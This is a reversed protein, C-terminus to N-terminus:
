RATLPIARTASADRGRAFRLEIGGERRGLVVSYRERTGGRVARVHVSRDDRAEIETMCLQFIGFPGFDIRGDRITIPSMSLVRARDIEHDFTSVEPLLVPLDPRYTGEFGTQPGDACPAEGFPLPPWSRAVDRTRFDLGLAPEATRSLRVPEADFAGDDTWEVTLVDGDRALRVLTMSADGPDDVDSHFVARAILSSASREVIEAPCLESRILSGYRIRNEEIQFTTLEDGDDIPGLRVYRGEYAGLDVSGCREFGAFLERMPDDEPEREGCALVFLSVLCARM